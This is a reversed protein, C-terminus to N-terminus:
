WLDIIVVASLPSLGRTKNLLNHINHQKKAQIDSM